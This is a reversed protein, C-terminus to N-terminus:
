TKFEADRLARRLQLCRILVQFREGIGDRMIQPRREAMHVTKRSDQHVFISGLQWGSRQAVEFADALGGRM